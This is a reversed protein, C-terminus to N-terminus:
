EKPSAISIRQAMDPTQGWVHSATGTVLALLTVINGCRRTEVSGAQAPTALLWASRPRACAEEPWPRPRVGSMSSISSSEKAHVREFQGSGVAGGAGADEAGRVAVHRRRREHGDARLAGHLADVGPLQAREARRDEEAVRVVQVQTWALIEDGLEAAQMCEHAPVARDEGVGAAVLDEREPVRDRAGVVLSHREARDVVAVEDAERGLGRGRDLAASPESM